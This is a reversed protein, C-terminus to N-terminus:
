QIANGGNTLTGDYDAQQLNNPNYDVPKTPDYQLRYKNNLLLINKVVTSFGYKLDVNSSDTYNSGKKNNM